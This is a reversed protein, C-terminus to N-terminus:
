SACSICTTAHPVAALRTEGIPQGCQACTGYTGEEIRGLAAHLQRVEELTSTDLRELVEDNEKEVAREQWDPNGPKRLDAEIKGARKTLQDLRHQLRTRIEAHESM